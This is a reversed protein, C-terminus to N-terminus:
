ANTVVNADPDDLAKTLESRYPEARKEAKWLQNAAAARVRADKDSLAGAFAMCADADTYSLGNVAELRAEPDRDRALTQIKERKWREMQRNALDDVWKEFDIAHAPLLALAFALALWRAM